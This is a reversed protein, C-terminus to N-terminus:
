APLNLGVVTELYNWPMWEEPNEEVFAHYRLLTVLYDFPNAGNLEASHILSM